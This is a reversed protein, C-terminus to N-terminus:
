DHLVELRYGLGRLTAIKFQDEYATFRERLRKIHVDVTREDGEYEFGWIQEILAARTFLQGPHSALKYMLEFEKLPITVAEETDKFIVQYALRDLVIGGVTIMQSASIRYRKLVAKVRVVLEMPDFPKTVYDDTGLQFGKIKEESEGKATIMLIPMDGTARLRRCLEWGDMRPMMIDMIVMDIGNEAIYTWAAEGNGFEVIEFGEDRLYLGVLERIHADDDVVAIKAM